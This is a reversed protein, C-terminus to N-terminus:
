AVIDANGEYSTSLIEVIDMGPYEKSILRVIESASINDSYTINIPLYTQKQPDERFLFEKKIVVFDSALNQAVYFDADNDSRYVELKLARRKLFVQATLM